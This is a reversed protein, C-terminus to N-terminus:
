LYCFTVRFNDVIVATTSSVYIFFSVIITMGADLCLMDIAASSIIM